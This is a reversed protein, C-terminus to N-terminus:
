SDKKINTVGWFSGDQWEAKCSKCKWDWEFNDWGFIYPQLRKAVIWKKCSPCKRIKKPILLYVFFLPLLLDKFADM